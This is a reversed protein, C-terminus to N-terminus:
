QSSSGRRINAPEFTTSISGNVDLRFQTEGTTDDIGKGRLTVLYNGAHTYSHRVQKGHVSVGDGFDWDYSIAPMEPSTESASFTVSEGANARSPHDARLVPTHAPVSTDIIKLVRVSHSPQSVVVQSSDALRQQDFIDSVSYPGKGKFGLSALTFNHTRPQETWNFITLISQRGSEKLLFISPQRDEPLYSMLDVPTSSRGLLAMDILDKNEVLALREPEAGLISLDDGIEFMGGSVAALAISVKAEDLTLPHRRPNRRAREGVMQESVTFADPDAVFFNRNMYYRAAIGAAAERSRAFAHGTDQSIRGFDVYGVPNLMVSGDKDLLVKDGVAQRIIGLGIRQAEMATTHPRYYYGEIASDDMFDLKIYRIGWDNAMTSYTQRLYEQAGPNTCDLMYLQDKKGTVWGAPIPKGQANHILWDPHNQYVSARESVEFPATWIGPVLGLGTVKRELPALGNPFLTANPTTYEGRAYQYGEDIHFFDYGLKKLNQAEWQANTLATGSSLGFYYATWSWWGLPSPASIRPHHLQRIIQAYTELQRHYDKGVSLLLRESDMQAGPALPLQLAIRDERPSDQLSNELELETTGTSDVEFAAIHKGSAGDDAVHIRMITLFRNSTLAGIFISQGSKRNYVLQTGVARYLNPTEDYFKGFDHIEMGPRDESFSDSLIRDDAVPGGLNLIPAGASEVPRIAAVNISKATTNVVSVEIDAFPADSYHRFNYRLDPEGSLGSFTVTWEEAPGLDDSASSRTVSHHPYDKAHLWRGDVEAAVGAKLGVDQTGQAVLAFSGDTSDIRAALASIRSQASLSAYPWCSALLISLGYSVASRRSICLNLNKM